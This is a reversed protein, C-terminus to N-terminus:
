NQAETDTWRKRTRTHTLFFSFSRVITLTGLQSDSDGITENYCEEATM